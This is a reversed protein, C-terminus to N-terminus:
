GQNSEHPRMGSMIPMIKINKRYMQPWYFRLRIRHFTRSVNLHGGLPNSHFAVFVINHLALPVLQLKAFSESGAIPEHYFLIRHDLHISSQQLAQRYNPDLKAAEVSQQSITGPNQVFKLVASLEPDETDPKVWVDRSPMRIGIAGNLYTEVYAAPAAYQNPECIEFNRSRIHLCRDLVQKFIRALSIAPIAADM